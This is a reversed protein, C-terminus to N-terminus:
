PKCPTRCPPSKHCYPDLMNILLLSHSILSPFTSQICQFKFILITTLFPPHLVLHLLTNLGFLSLTIISKQPHYSGWSKNFIFLHKWDYTQQIYRTYIDFSSPNFLFSLSPSPNFCVFFQLLLDVLSNRCIRYTKM